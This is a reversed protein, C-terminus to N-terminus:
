GGCALRTRLGQRARESREGDGSRAAALLERVWVRLVVLQRLRETAAVDAPGYAAALADGTWPTAFAESWWDWWGLDLGPPGSKAAEWDVVGTVRGEAVLINEPQHDGHVLGTPLADLFGAADAFADVVAAVLPADDVGLAVADAEARVVDAFWASLSPASGGLEATLNGAGPGVAVSHVARLVRAVDALLRADGAAEAAVDALRRGSRRRQIMAPTPDVGAWLVEPVPVGAAQARGIVAVEMDLRDTGALARVVLEGAATDVFWVENRRGAGAPRPPGVVPGLGADTVVAAADTM